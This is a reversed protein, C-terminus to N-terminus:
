NMNGLFAQGLRIIINRCLTKQDYGCMIVLGFGLTRIEPHRLAGPLCLLGAVYTVTANTAALLADKVTTPKCPSGCAYDSKGGMHVSSSDALPGILAIKASRRLPM